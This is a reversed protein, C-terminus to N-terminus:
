GRAGHLTAAAAYLLDVHVKESTALGAVSPTDDIVLYEDDGGSGGGPVAGRLCPVGLANPVVTWPGGGPQIPWVVSELGWAALTDSAARVIPHDPDTQHHDFAAFTEIAVDDFGHADLHRRIAAIIEEASLDVVTRIDITATASGPVIFPITGTNPGLFGSRLGAVNFTPGYLLDVLPTVGELRTLLRDVNAVGGVGLVDRWDTGATRAGIARLLETRGASLPQRADWLAALEPVRCGSGDSETLTALAQALRFPPSHVLSAASSHITSAPAGSWRAGEVTLELVAMGKLGLGVSVAGPGAQASSPCYSAAVRGLRDRHREVHQAYTPSGLIEEGEPLFMVNMPLTGEVALIARLANLFAVFPGKAGLAGRGVLVRGGDKTVIEGGFPDHSWRAADVTRTDFMAYSHVTVPAGVDLFAWVGPQYRGELVAIDRCGLEEFSEAVVTAMETVGHDHWSVSPQRVWRQVHAIDDGVHADIHAFIADRNM